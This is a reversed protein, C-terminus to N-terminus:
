RPQRMYGLESLIREEEAVMCGYENETEHDYGVLHLMGHVILMNIRTEADYVTSMAGSVGRDFVGGSDGKEQMLENEEQDEICRRIVYPVDIIMDGLQYYDPIDFLPEEVVGPVHTPEHFPFSLIDTEAKIGRTKYNIRRMEKDNVLFLSVDYTEYGISKRVIGITNRLRDINMEPIAVQKNDILITGEVGTEHKSGFLRFSQCAYPVPLASKNLKSMWLPQFSVHCLVYVSYSPLNRVVYHSLLCATTHAKRGLLKKGSSFLSSSSPIM